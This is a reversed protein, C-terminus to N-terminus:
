DSSTSREIRTPDLADFADFGIQGEDFKRDGLQETEARWAALLRAGDGDPLMPVPNTALMADLQGLEDVLHEWESDFDTIDDEEDTASRERDLSRAARRLADSAVGAQFDLQLGPGSESTTGDLHGTSRGARRKKKAAAQSGRISQCRQRKARSM